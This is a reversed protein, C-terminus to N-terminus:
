AQKYESTYLERRGDVAFEVPTGKLLALEEESFHLPTHFEPPLIDIYPKWFSKDKAVFREHILFTCLMPRGHLDIDLTEPLMSQCVSDTIVLKYPIWAYPENELIAQRAFVGNGDSGSSRIEIKSLDAGNEELWKVFVRIKGDASADISSAM